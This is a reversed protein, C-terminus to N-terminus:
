ACTTRESLTPQSMDTCRGAFEPDRKERASAPGERNDESAPPATQALSEALIGSRMDADAALAV